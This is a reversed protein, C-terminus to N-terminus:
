APLLVVFVSGDPGSQELAITGQHAEVIWRAIALGLGAGSTTSATSRSRASDVRVFREFVRPQFEPPIGPGRDRVRLEYADHGRALSVSVVADPPSHKIANDLLNCVLRHLLEQDGTFPAEVATDITITVGRPEALTRMSRVCEAIVEDLYLPVRRLPVDGADARALLFLDDVIRRLRRGADRIATLSDEYEDARRGPRSLAVTAEN